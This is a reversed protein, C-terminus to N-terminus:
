IFFVATHKFIILFCSIDDTCQGFSIIHRFTIHVLYDLPKFLAAYWICYLEKSKNTQHTAYCTAKCLIFLCCLIFSYKDAGNGKTPCFLINANTYRSKQCAYLYKSRCGDKHSSEFCTLIDKENVANQDYYCSSIFKQSITHKNIKMNYIFTGIIPTCLLYKILKTRKTPVKALSILNQPNIMIIRNIITEDNANAMLVFSSSDGSVIVDSKEGIVHKIFDTILQAYLFNTYTLFPRDSCGCGLLDITYVTNTKSLEEEINKWEDSSSCVDFNHVLLLPSGSGKRKYAVKGFRWNYCKYTDKQLYDDATAIYTFIRNIIHMTGLMTGTFAAIFGLKKKWGM